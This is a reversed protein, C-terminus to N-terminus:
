ATKDNDAEPPKNADNAQRRKEAFMIVAVYVLSAFMTVISLVVSSVFSKCLGLVDFLMPLLVALVGGLILAIGIHQAPKGSILFASTAQVKKKLCVYIGAGILILVGLLM